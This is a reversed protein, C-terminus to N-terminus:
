IAELGNMELIPPTHQHDLGIIYGSPVNGIPSEALCLTAIDSIGPINGRPNYPLLM